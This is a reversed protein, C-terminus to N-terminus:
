CGTRSLGDARRLLTPLRHPGHMRRICAAAAPLPVGAASVFLPSRSRGRTIAVAPGGGRFPRKAVGIVPVSRHLAAHLHAGLGPKEEGGLWVYGDIVIVAPLTPYDALVRLLCPLERLYFRGPVYPAVVAIRAVHEVAAVADSWDHFLVCAAVADPDRYHVDLCAIVPEGAKM